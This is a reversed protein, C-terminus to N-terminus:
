ILFHHPGADPGSGQMETRTSEDAVERPARDEERRARAWDMTSQPVYSIVAELEQLERYYEEGRRFAGYHMQCMDYLKSSLWDAYSALSGLVYGCVAVGMSILLATGNRPDPLKFPEFGTAFFLGLSAGGILVGFFVGGFVGALKPFRQYDSYMKDM